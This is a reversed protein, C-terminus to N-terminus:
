EKEHTEPLAEEVIDKVAEDSLTEVHQCLRCPCTQPKVIDYMLKIFIVMIGVSQLIEFITDIM